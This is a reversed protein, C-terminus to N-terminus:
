HRASIREREQNEKWDNNRFLNIEKIHPRSDVWEMIERTSINNQQIDMGNFVQRFFELDEPYDLTFRYGDVIGHEYFNGNKWAFTFGGVPTQCRTWEDHKLESIALKMLEIDTFPDDGDFNIAIDIGFIECAAVFRQKANDNHGRFIKCSNRNAWICIHDDEPLDTTAVIVEDANVWLARRIDHVILPRGNIMKLMKGPLRSSGTRAVIIVANKM